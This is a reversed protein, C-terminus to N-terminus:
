SNRSRKKAAREELVSGVTAGLFVIMGSMYTWLMLVIVSALSGYVLGYNALGSTLFLAFLSRAARWAVGALIAGALGARPNIRRNPLVLYVVWLFVIILGPDLSWRWLESLLSVHNTIPWVTFASFWISAIFLGGIALVTVIAMLRRRWFSRHSARWIVNMSVSLTTFVASASWILLMGGLLSFSGRAELTQGVVREVIPAVAPITADLYASLTQRIVDSSLVYSAVGVLFLLLPFISLLLHYAVSGARVACEYETYKDAIEVIFGIFERILKILSKGVRVVALDQVKGPDDAM